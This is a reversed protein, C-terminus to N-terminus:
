KTTGYLAFLNDFPNQGIREIKDRCYPLGLLVSHFKGVSIRVGFQLANSRSTIPQRGDPM